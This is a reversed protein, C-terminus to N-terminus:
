EAENLKNIDRLRDNVRSQIALEFGVPDDNLAFNWGAKMGAIFARDILVDADLNDSM